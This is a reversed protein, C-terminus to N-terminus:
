KLYNTNRHGKYITTNDTFLFTNCYEINRHLDNTFLLFFLPGLCSGQPMVYNVPYCESYKMEQEAEVTCKIRLKRNTLYSEFWKNM